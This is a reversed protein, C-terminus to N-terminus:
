KQQTKGHPKDEATFTVNLSPNTRSVLRPHAKQVTVEIKARIAELGSRRVVKNMLSGCEPCLATLRGTNPTQHVYDAIKGDPERPGKCGFCYCHHLALKCRGKSQRRGLFTKLDQGEILWPKNSTDAVLRGNKIWRIVTRKHCKLLESTEWVTYVRHKKIRAASFSKTM